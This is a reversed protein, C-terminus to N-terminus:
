LNRWVGEGILLGSQTTTFPSYLAYSGNDMKVRSLKSQELVHPPILKIEKFIGKLNRAQQMLQKEEEYIRQDAQKMPVQIPLTVPNGQITTEIVCTGFMKRPHRGVRKGREFAFAEPYEELIKNTWSLLDENVEINERKRLTILPLQFANDYTHASGTFEEVVDFGMLKMVARFQEPNKLPKGPTLALVAWGGVKLVRQMEEFSRVRDILGKKPQFGTYHLCLSATLVDFSEKEFPMSSLGGVATRGESDSGFMNPNLDMSTVHKALDEPLARRLMEPGSAADLVKLEAGKDMGKSYAQVAAGCVRNVNGAFSRARFEKYLDAYEKGHREVFRAFNNEGIERSASFLYMLRDWASLYQEAIESSLVVDSGGSEEKELLEKEIDTLPIGRLLKEVAHYKRQVYEHIGQEVTGETVLSEVTVANQVGPRYVRSRQQQRAYETWPENYHLVTDGRSYDVGVDATNGSVYLVWRGDGRQFGAQIKTRDNPDIDGHIVATKVDAPLNIREVLASSGSIDKSPRLIGDVIDNVFVVIHTAGEDFARNIRAELRRVKEGKKAQSRDPQQDVLSPDLLWKRLFHLKSLRDFEDGEEVFTKYLLAENPSLHCALVDERLPPLEVSEALSKAQMRPLLYKRIEVLDGRIIQAALVGPEVDKFEDPHLLTLAVAIDRVTNPVPTGSLLVLRDDAKQRQAIERLLSSRVGDTSKLKHMEDVIITSWQTESIARYRENMREQTMIVYDVGEVHALDAPSEIEVIKPEMGSKFCGGRANESSLYRRWTGLVNSPVLILAPSLTRGEMKARQMAAEHSLIASASKGMGMEDAILMRKKDQVEKINMRQALDPFERGDKLSAAIREPLEIKWIDQFYELVAMVADGVLPHDLLTKGNSEKGSAAQVSRLETELNSLYGDLLDHASLKSGARKQVVYYKYCHDKITETLAEKFEQEVSKELKPLAELAELDSVNGSASMLMTEGLYESLLGKVTEIPIDKFRPHLSFLIDISRATGLVRILSRFQLAEPTSAEVTAKLFDILSTELDEITARTREVGKRDKYALLQSRFFGHLAQYAEGGKEFFVKYGAWAGTSIGRVGGYRAIGWRSREDETLNVVWKKLTKSAYNAVDADGFDIDSIMPKTVASLWVAGNPIVEVDADPAKPRTSFYTIAWEVAQPRLFVVERKSPPLICKGFWDPHLEQLDRLADRVLGIKRGLSVALSEYTSCGEPLTYREKFFTRIREVLSPHLYLSRRISDESERYNKILEPSKETSASDTGGQTEEALRRAEKWFTPKTTEYAEILETLLSTGKVWGAPPLELLSFKQKIAEVTTPPLYDVEGLTVIAEPDTKLLEQAHKIVSDPSSGLEDALANYTSYSEVKKRLAIEKEILIILDPHYCNALQARSTRYKKIWGSHGRVNREASAAIIWDTTGLREAISHADEWSEPKNEISGLLVIVYAVAIKDYMRSIQVKEAARGAFLKQGQKLYDEYAKKSARVGTSEIAEVAHTFSYTDHELRSAEERVKSPDVAIYDLINVGRKKTKSLNDKGGGDSFADDNEVSLLTLPTPAEIPDTAPKKPLNWAEFSKM